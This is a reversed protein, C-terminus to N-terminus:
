IANVIIAKTRRTLKVNCVLVVAEIRTANGLGVEVMHHFLMCRRVIANKWAVTTCFQKWVGVYELKMLLATPVIYTSKIMMSEKDEM